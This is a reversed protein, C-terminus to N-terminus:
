SVVEAIQYERLREGFKKAKEPCLNAGLRLSLRRVSAASGYGICREFKAGTSM